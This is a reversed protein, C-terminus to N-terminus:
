AITVEKAVHGPLDWAEAIVTTGPTSSASAFEWWDDERRTAEGKEVTKGGRDLISVQVRAVMVNDTAEVLIHGDKREIRRIVPPHWWDSVAFNYATKMPAAAAMGAYIPHEEAAERAYAAAEGFRSQHAKQKRSFKRKKKRPARSVVTSGDPMLRYILDGIQGRVGKILGEFVVKPM